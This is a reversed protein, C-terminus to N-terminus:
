HALQRDLEAAFGDAHVRKFAARARELEIQAGNEEGLSQLARAFALRAEGLDTLLQQEELLRIAEEFSSVTSAHEGFAAAVIGEAILFAARAYLDEEPLNRAAFLTLERGEERRGQDVLAEVLYRYVEILLWGGGELALPVADQLRREALM